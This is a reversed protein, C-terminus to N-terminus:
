KLEKLYVTYEFVKENEISWIEYLIYPEDAHSRFILKGFSCKENYCYEAEPICRHTHTNTLKSSEFEHLPYGDDRHIKWLDSRHRDASMLVVGEIQNEALFGFLEDREQKYGKWHDYRGEMEGKAAYAWPVPSVIVKFTADSHLLSKLLWAKQVPGLMSPQSITDDVYAPERYYRGDLMFFEVDAMQFSFWVGPQADGGGYSVNAWQNRFTNFVPIKWEPYDIDPGGYDDNDAFDHDDWIAYIPTQSVLHRWERESQRQYYCYEQIYPHEPYDIYVNDGLLLLGNLDHQALTTWMHRHWPIYGGGGGFAVAVEAPKGAPPQTSFSYVGPHLQGDIVVQYFYRTDPRLDGIMVQVAYERDAKTQHSPTAFARRMRRNESMLFAVEAENATRVWLIASTDFVNGVMPGHVLMTAQEAFWEQYEPTAHLGALFADPGAMFRGPPLGYDVALRLYHMASDVQELASFAVTKIYCAEADAGQQRAKEIAVRPDGYKVELMYRASGVKRNYWTSDNMNHKIAPFKESLAEAKDKPLQCGGLLLVLFLWATHKM